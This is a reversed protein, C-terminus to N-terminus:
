IYNISNEKDLLILMLERTSDINEGFKAVYLEILKKCGEIHLPLKSTEICRKIWDFTQEQATEM